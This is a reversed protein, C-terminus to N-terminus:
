ADIDVFWGRDPGADGDGTGPSTSGPASASASASGSGPEGSEDVCMDQIAQKLHEV